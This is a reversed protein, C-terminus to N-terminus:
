EGISNEYFKRKLNLMLYIYAMVAFMISLAGVITFTLDFTAFSRLALLLKAMLVGGGIILSFALGLVVILSSSNATEFAFSEEDAPFKAHTFDYKTAICIQAFSFLIGVGLVFFMVKLTVFGTAFLISASLIQSFTAVLMCLLIKSYILTLPSIPMAKLSYFLNGERSINTSCFMNSLASFMLTLFIALEVNSNIGILKFILSSGISMCFYVMMPVIIAVSFYSFAYSPTRFIQLFEKKILSFFPPIKKSVKKKKFKFKETGGVRAQLVWNLISKIVFLALGFCVVLLIAIFVFSKTVNHKVFLNALWSSPFAFSAVLNIKEMLSQNFFYKLSEGLLLEKIGKLLLFYVYFLGITILTIVIFRLIFHPSIARKIARFPLVLISAFATSIIPLVFCVIATMVYYWAAVQFHAALTLNITLVSVLSYIFQQFYISIIKAVFLSNAGIPMASFLAVDEGEFLARNIQGVGAITIFILVCSYCISLLEFARKTPNLVHQTKITLYIDSFKGFFVVFVAVFAVVLVIRLCFGVFDFNGKKFASTKEQMQKKLISKVLSFDIKEM